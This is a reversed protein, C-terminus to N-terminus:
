YLVDPLKPSSKHWTGNRRQTLEDLPYKKNFDDIVDPLETTSHYKKPDVDRLIAWAMIDSANDLCIQFFNSLNEIQEATELQRGQIYINVRKGKTKHKLKPM